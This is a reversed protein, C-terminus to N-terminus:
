PKGNKAVARRVAREKDLFALLDDPDAEVPLLRGLEALDHVPKVGQRRILEDISPGSKRRKSAGTPSRRTTKAM